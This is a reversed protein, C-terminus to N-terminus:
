IKETNIKKNGSLDLETINKLNLVSDTVDGFKNNRLSLKKIFKNMGIDNGMWDLQSLNM